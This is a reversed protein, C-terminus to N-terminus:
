VEVKKRELPMRLRFGRLELANKATGATITVEPEALVKLVETRLSDSLLSSPPLPWWSSLKSSNVALHTPHCHAHAGDRPPHFRDARVFPGAGHLM